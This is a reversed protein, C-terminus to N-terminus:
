RVQPVKHILGRLEDKLTDYPLTGAGAKAIVIFVGQLPTSQHVAHLVNYVRRRFKNRLVATKAHKKGIVASGHFSSGPDHILTLTPSHYRKGVAFSRNFAERSLREKKPLM